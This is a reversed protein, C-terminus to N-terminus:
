DIQQRKEQMDTNALQNNKKRQKGEEHPIRPKHDIGFKMATIEKKGDKGTDQRCAQLREMMERTGKVEVPAKMNFRPKEMNPVFSCEGMNKEIEMDEVTRTTREKRESELRSFNYLLSTRSGGVFSALRLYDSSLSMSDKFEEESYQPGRTIKPQFTCEEPFDQSKLERLAEIKEEARQREIILINEIKNNGIKEIRRRKAEAALKESNSDLTPKFAYVESEQGTHKIKSKKTQYFSFYDLHLKNSAQSPDKSINLVSQLFDQIKPFAISSDDSGELYGWAKSALAKEVPTGAPNNGSCIFGLKQLINLFETFTLSLEPLNSSPPFAEKLEEAFRKSLIAESEPNIIIKEPAEPLEPFKEKDKDKSLKYLRQGVTGERKLLKSQSNLEPKFSCEQELMAKALLEQKSRLVQSEKYLREHIKPIEKVGSTLKITKQSLSPKFTSKDPTESDEKEKKQKEIKENKVRQFTALHSLLQAFKRKEQNNKIKPAFTCSELEKSRYAEQLAELKKSTKQQYEYFRKEVDVKHPKPAVTDALIDRIAKSYQKKKEPIEKEPNVSVSPKEEIIEPEKQTNAIVKEEEEKKEEEPVGPPVAPKEENESDSAKENDKKSEVVKFLSQQMISAHMSSQVVRINAGETVDEVEMDSGSSSEKESM